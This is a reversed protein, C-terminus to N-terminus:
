ILAAAAFSLGGAIVSSSTSALVLTRTQERLAGQLQHLRGDLCDLRVEFREMRDEFREMRDEFRGIDAKTAPEDPDGRPSLDMVIQAVDDGLM